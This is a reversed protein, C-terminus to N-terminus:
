RGPNKKSFHLTIGNKFVIETVAGYTVTIHDIILNLFKKPVSHNAMRLYKEFDFKPDKTLMIDLAAFSAKIELDQDDEASNVMSALRAEIREQEAILAARERLYDAEAIGDNGHLYLAQLRNLALETKKKAELLTTKESPGTHDPLFVEESISASLSRSKLHTSLAKLDEQNVEADKINRLVADNIRSLPTNAHISAHAQLINGIITFVFQGIPLDNVYSNDCIHNNSRRNRCGYMSPRTGDKRMRDSTATMNAGCVGCRLLGAFIHLHKGAYTDGPKRPTRQNYSLRNQASKFDEETIIQPHHNKIVVWKDEPNKRGNKEDTKNYVYDGTYFHNTLIKHVTTPTWEKGGRTTIRKENLRRTIALLSDGSRYARFIHQVVDKEGNAVFFEGDKRVYGYPVRGGNWQGNAARSVMTATVRESTMNRELEAFVLIIKLMAEGIATSTDFQENKSVFTVGLNKLEAYMNSFDLLNRSIRDIKWCVLHSFEGTRLRAMMEQYAPRDTSKASYGPDEFIEYSNIHLILDCYAILERKQVKLSDKDIQHSTSVRIYIAAKDKM